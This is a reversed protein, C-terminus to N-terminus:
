RSVPCPGDWVAGPPLMAMLLDRQAQLGGDEPKLNDPFWAPDPLWGIMVRKPGGPTAATGVGRADLPIDRGAGADGFMMEASERTQRGLAIRGGIQDLFGGSLVGVSGQVSGLVLNMKVERAMVALSRLKSVVPHETPHDGPVGARAQYWHDKILMCLMLYQDIILLIRQYDEERTRDEEIAGYRAQMDDYTDEILKIMEEARTAIRTVGPWGALGTMAIRKPDCVRVDCGIRAGGIALNRLLTSVGTGARGTILFHPADTGSLQAAAPAGDDYSGYVIVELNGFSGSTDVPRLLTVAPLQAGSATM